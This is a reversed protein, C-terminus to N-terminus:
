KIMASIQNSNTVKMSSTPTDPSEALWELLKQPMLVAQRAIRGIRSIGLYVIDRAEGMLGKDSSNRLDELEIIQQSVAAVIKNTVEDQTNLVDTLKRDYRGGWLHFETESDVLQVLIRVRDEVQQISGEFVYNVKNKQTVSNEIKLDNRIVIFNSTSLLSTKLNEMLGVSFASGQTTEGILKFPVIALAAKERSSTEAPSSGFDSFLVFTLLLLCAVIILNVPLKIWESLRRLFSETSEVSQNEVEIFYHRLPTAINKVKKTGMDQFGLDLKNKVQEYITSSVCIGGAGALSELRAAINVGDGYIDEEDVVIEGLNIGMRFDFRIDAPKGVNRANMQTQMDCACRVADSATPFETLFGDGTHKVIRGGHRSISPDIVEKRAAWWDKITRDEDASMLRTYGAVDAALVAALRRESYAESM